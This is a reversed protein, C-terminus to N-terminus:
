VCGPLNVVATNNGDFIGGTPTNSSSTVTVMSQAMEAGAIMTAGLEGSPITDDVDITFSASAGSALSPIRVSLQQDGDAVRDSSVLSVSGQKVEFPQYVQVGAGTETTDFILQGVSQTLDITVMLETLECNGVNHIEFWDKPASEVFKVEINAVASTSLPLLLALSAVLPLTKM